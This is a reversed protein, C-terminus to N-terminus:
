PGRHDPQERVVLRAIDKWGYSVEVLDRGGIVVAKRGVREGELSEYFRCARHNDELVWLLMSSFGDNLLRQTVASVLRRGLGRNQHEQLLYIAYLEGRYTSDAEREPGGNAFGVVNSGETEAVFISTAPQNSTLIENWRSERRQYSLNALYEAPVVGAYTTRWSDIHVRAISGADAAEAVRITVLM